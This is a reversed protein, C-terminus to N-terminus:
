GRVEFPPNHALGSKDWVVQGSLVTVEVQINKIEDTPLRTPDGSLVVLDAVKGPTISGKVKEEFTTRAAYETYMRVADLPMIGEKVLVAKGTESRRSIASYIGIMPNAPGIPCDSSGAVHVGNEMLTAIPYLHKLQLRPVTELYRDGNAYIFSPQTVVMIGLSALQKSLPPPCVSCHEIRHRHDSRPSSQLACEIATCAAQISTEEIAHIVAQFGSQHIVSVLENLEAQTPNLRGTTEDLIIKVGGPRLYDKGRKVSFDDKPYDKFAKIGLMMCVRPELRGQAKWREFLKWREIDNRSSADQISTIGLSLLERNALKIGHELQHSDLPPVSQSLFDGMGYLLGTPEGTRIDRDILGGKPDSTEKSIGTLKLALSNLVHAHGTRHTLKIPHMSTALDLDLRTPHRKEKLYFENYGGCRIWGGSPLDQSVQQIKNQIESISRVSNQPGVNVAVLSEAFSPLHFHADIFGPIITKGRCDIITPNGCTLNKLERNQGVSLIKGGHIAVVEAQPHAPDLTIINANSFILDPPTPDGM